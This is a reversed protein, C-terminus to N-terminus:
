TTFSLHRVILDLDEDPRSNKKLSVSGGCCYLKGADNQKVHGASVVDKRMCHLAAIQDHQWWCPFLIVEETGRRDIVLYKM